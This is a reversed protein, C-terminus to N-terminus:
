AKERDYGTRNLVDGNICELVVYSGKTGKKASLIVISEGENMIIKMKLM